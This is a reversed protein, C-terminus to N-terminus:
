CNYKEGCLEFLYEWQWYIASVCRIYGLEDQGDKSLGYIDHLQSSWPACKIIYGINIGSEHDHGAPDFIKVCM